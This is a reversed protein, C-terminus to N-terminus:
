YVAKIKDPDRFIWVFWILQAVSVLGCMFTGSIQFLVFTNRTLLDEIQSYEFGSCWLCSWAFCLVVGVLLLLISGRWKYTCMLFIRGLSFVCVILTLYTMVAIDSHSFLVPIDSSMLIFFVYQALLFLATLFSSTIAMAEKLMIKM